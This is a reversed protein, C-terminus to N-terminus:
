RASPSQMPMVQPKAPGIPLWALAMSSGHKFWPRIQQLQERGTALELSARDSIVDQAKFRLSGFLLLDVTLGVRFVPCRDLGTRRVWRSAIGFQAGDQIISL